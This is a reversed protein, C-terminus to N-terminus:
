RIRTPKITLDVRALIKKTSDPYTIQLDGIILVATSSTAPNLALTEVDSLAFKALGNAADYITLNKTILVSADSITSLFDIKLSSGTLNVPTSGDDEVYAFTFLYDDGAVICANYIEPCAM